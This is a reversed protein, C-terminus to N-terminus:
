SQHASPLASAHTSGLTILFESPYYRAIKAEVGFDPHLAKETMGAHTQRALFGPFPVRVRVREQLPAPSPCLTLASCDFNAFTLLRASLTTSTLITIVEAEFIPRAASTSLSIELLEYAV